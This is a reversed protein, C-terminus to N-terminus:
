MPRCTRSRSLILILNGQKCGYYSVAGGKIIAVYGTTSKSGDIDSACSADAYSIPMLDGGQFVHNRGDLYRLLYKAAARMHAASPDANYQSMKNTKETSEGEECIHLKTEALAPPNCQIM